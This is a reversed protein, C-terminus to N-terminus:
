EQVYQVNNIEGAAINVLNGSSDFGSFVFVGFVRRHATDRMTITVIGNSVPNQSSAEGSEGPKTFDFYEFERDEITDNMIYNGIAFPIGSIEIDHKASSGAGNADISLISGQITASLQEVESGETTFPVGNIIATVNGQDYSGSGIPIDNFYGSTVTAIENPEAQTPKRSGTLEFTGSVLNNVKDFKDITITGGPLSNFFAFGLSDVDISGTAHANQGSASNSIAMTQPKPDILPVSLRVSGFSGDNFDYFLYVSMIVSGDKQGTYPSLSASGFKLPLTRSDFARGNITYGYENEGAGSPITSIPPYEPAVGQNCGCVGAILLLSIVSRAKKQMSTNSIQYDGRGTFDNRL